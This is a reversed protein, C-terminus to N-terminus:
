DDKILDEDWVEVIKGNQIDMKLIFDFLPGNRNKRAVMELLSTGDSQKHGILSIVLDADYAAQRSSAVEYIQPPSNYEKTENSSASVVAVIPIENIMALEKLEKSVNRIRETEGTSGRNDSMLQLYDVFVIDPAYQDIKAQLQAPSLGGMGDSSSVVFTQNSKLNAKTWLSIEELDIQARALESMNFQGQSMFAYARDRVSVSSMELSIFLVRKMQAWANIAVDLAIMSKGMNTRSLIMIYHGAYLGTPYNADISDYGTRIGLVGGNQEMLIQTTSYHDMAKEYDTIDLDRVGSSIRNLQGLYDNLAGILAENPKVGIDKALGRSIRELYTIKFEETLQEIYYKTAGSTEVITFDIFLEELLDRPVIARHKYYYEKVFSWIDVCSTFLMDINASNIAPAIDNNNIISSIVRVENIM